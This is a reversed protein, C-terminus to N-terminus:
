LEKVHVFDNPGCNVIISGGSLDSHNCYRSCKQHAKIGACRISNSECSALFFGFMFFTSFQFFFIKLDKVDITKTSPLM